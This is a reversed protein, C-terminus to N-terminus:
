RRRIWGRSASASWTRPATRRTGTSAPVPSTTPSARRAAPGHADLGARRPRGHRRAVGHARGGDLRHGAHEGHGLAAEARPRRRLPVRHRRRRAPRLARRRRAARRVQPRLALAPRGGAGRRRRAATRGDPLRRHPVPRAVGARPPRGRGGAAAHGARPERAPRQRAVHRAHPGRGRLSGHGPARRRRGAGDRGRLRREGPRPLRGGVAPHEAAGIVVRTGLERIARVGGWIALAVSETGGSTFM